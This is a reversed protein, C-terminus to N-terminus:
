LIPTGFVDLKNVMVTAGAQYPIFSFKLYKARTPTLAITYVNGNNNGANTAIQTYTIDDASASITIGKNEWQGGGNMRIKCSSVTYFSNLTLKLVGPTVADPANYYLRGFGIDEGPIEKYESIASQLGLAPALGSWTYWTGSVTSLRAGNSDYGSIPYGSDMRKLDKSFVEFNSFLTDGTGGDRRKLISTSCTNSKTAGFTVDHVEYSSGAINEGSVSSVTNSGVKINYDSPNRADNYKAVHIKYIYQSSPFTMVYTQPTFGVTVNPQYWGVNYKTLLASGDAAFNTGVTSSTTGPWHTLSVGASNAYYLQLGGVGPVGAFDWLQDTTNVHGDAYGVITKGSHRTFNVDMSEYAISPYLTDVLPDATRAVQAGDAIVFCTTPDTMTGVSTDAYKSNYVYGNPTSKGLTPCVLVGPDVKIGTWVSACDPLSEEHDQAFMQISAVIQRQNSTCTTQRAKERARAFVPFLIAALIAIIAIVVLLEILTFGQRTVKTRM